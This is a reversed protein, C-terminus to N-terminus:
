APGRSFHGLDGVRVQAFPIQGRDTLFLTDATVCVTGSEDDENDGFGGHFLMYSPHFRGDPRLHRLFGEVFTSLTKSASDGETMAEIFAKAAPVGEAVARLHSKKLTPKKDKPTFEIPKLNLGHPTFFFENLISPLLPNKGEAIQEEIRERYKTRMKGPLLSLQKAQSEKIVKRLDAALQHYKQQDVLIGRREIKEFARAAPHLITM